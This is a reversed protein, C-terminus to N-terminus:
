LFTEGGQDKDKHHEAGLLEQANEFILRKEDLRSVHIVKTKTEDHGIVWNPDKDLSISGENNITYKQQPLGSHKTFFIMPRQTHTYSDFNNMPRNYDHIHDESDIFVKIAKDVPGFTIHQEM